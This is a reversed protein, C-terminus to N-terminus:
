DNDFTTYVAMGLAKNEVRIDLEAKGDFDAPIDFTGTLSGGDDDRLQGVTVGKLGKSGAKGIYVTFTVNAPVNTVKIKVTDDEKVSVISLVMAPAGEGGTNDELDANIFWNSALDTSSKAHAYIKAIDTLRGPLRFTHEFAGNRDTTVSGALYASSSYTSYKSLYVSYRTNALLRKGVLTVFSDEEVSEAYIRVSASGSVPNGDTDTNGGDTGSNTTSVCLKQGPYIRNPNELENLDALTRWDTNYLRAIQSLYEGRQVTHWQKCTATLDAASSAAAAPQVAAALLAFVMVFALLLNSVKTRTSM